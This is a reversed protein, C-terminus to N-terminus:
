ASARLVRLYFTDPDNKSSIVVFDIEIEIDSSTVQFVEAGGRRRTLVRETQHVEGDSHEDIESGRCEFFAEVADDVMEGSGRRRAEAGFQVGLEGLGRFQLLCDFCVQPPQTIAPSGALM